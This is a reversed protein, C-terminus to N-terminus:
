PKRNDTLLDIVVVRRDKGPHVRFRVPREFGLTICVPNLAPSCAQNLSVRATFGPVAGSKPSRKVEDIAPSAGFTGPTPAELIVVVAEGREAPYHRLYRVPGTLRLEISAIGDHRVIAIEDIVEAQAPRALVLGAALGAMLRRVLPKM